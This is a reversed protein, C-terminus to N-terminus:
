AAAIIRPLTFNLWDIAAHGLIAPWLSQTRVVAVALVSGIIAASAVSAAGLGWHFLGFLLSSPLIWLPPWASRFLLFPAARAVLEESVAVLPIGIVADAALLDVDLLSPMHYRGSEPLLGHMVPEIVVGALTCVGGWAVLRGWRQRGLLSGVLHRSSTPVLFAAIVAVRIAWDSVVWAEDDLLLLPDNMLFIAVGVVMAVATARKREAERAATTSTDRKTGKVTM